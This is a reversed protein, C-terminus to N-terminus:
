RNCPRDEHVMEDILAEREEESLRDWDIGRESAIERIREGAYSSVTEWRPWRRALLYRFLGDQQQSPLQKLLEVVQEETLDLTPM